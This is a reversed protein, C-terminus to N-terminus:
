RAGSLELGFRDRLDAKTTAVRDAGWAVQMNYAGAIGTEDVTPRELAPQLMSALDALSAGLLDMGDDRMHISPRLPAAQLRTAATAHLVFVEFERPEMHTVLHLRQELERKLYSRFLEHDGDAVATIAYRTSVLWEPGSIRVMLIDYAISLAHKLPVGEGRLAAPQVSVSRGYPPGISFELWPLDSRNASRFAFGGLGLAALVGAAAGAMLLKVRRSGRVYVYLTLGRAALAAASVMVESKVVSRGDREWNAAFHDEAANPPFLSPMDVVRKSKKLEEDLHITVVHSYDHFLYLYMTRSHLDYVNSYQTPAEGEQHTAALIERFLDVSV